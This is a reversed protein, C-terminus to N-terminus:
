ERSTTPMPDTCVREPCGRELIRGGAPLAFGFQAVRTPMRELPVCSRQVDDKEDRVFVALRVNRGERIVQVGSYRSGCEDVRIVASLRDDAVRVVQWGSALHPKGLNPLFGLSRLMPACSVFLIAFVILWFAIQTFWRWPASQRVRDRLGVSEM